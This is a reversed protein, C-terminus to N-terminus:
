LLMGAAVKKAANSGTLSEVLALGFQIATGPGRSTIVNGDRVIPADDCYSGDSIETECGPYCTFRRGNLIGAAGLVIPSACIAAVIKDAALFERLAKAVRADALLNRMGLSGGPLVIADFGDLSDIIDAFLCDAEITTGHAARVASTDSISARVVEICGRHMIDIAAVAELEEFGEALLILASM